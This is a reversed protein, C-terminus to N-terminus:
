QSRERARKLKSTTELSDEGKSFRGWASRKAFKMSKRLEKEVEKDRSTSSREDSRMSSRLYILWLKLIPLETGLLHELQRSIRANINSSELCIHHANVDCVAIVETGRSKAYETARVFTVNFIQEEDYPFYPSCWLIGKDGEPNKM